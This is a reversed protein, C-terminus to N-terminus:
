GEVLLNEDSASSEWSNLDVPHPAEQGRIPAKQAGHSLAMPCLACQHHHLNLPWRAVLPHNVQVVDQSLWLHICELM